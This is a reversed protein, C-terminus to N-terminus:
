RGAEKPRAALMARYISDCITVVSYGKGSLEEYRKSGATQMAPTVEELGDQVPSPNAEGEPRRSLIALAEKLGDRVGGHRSCNPDGLPYSEALAQEESIRKKLAAIEERETM